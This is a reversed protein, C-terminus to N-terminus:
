ALLIFISQLIIAIFKFTKLGKSVDQGKVERYLGGVITISIQITVIIAASATLASRAIVPQTSYARVIIGAKLVM